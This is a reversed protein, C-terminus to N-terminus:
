LEHGSKRLFATFVIGFVVNSYQASMASIAPAIAMTTDTM